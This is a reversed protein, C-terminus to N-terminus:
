RNPPFLRGSSFLSSVLSDDSSGHGLGGAVVRSEVAVFRSEVLFRGDGDSVLEVAFVLSSNPFM